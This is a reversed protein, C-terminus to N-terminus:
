GFLQEGADKFQQKEEDTLSENLLIKLMLNTYTHVAPIDGFDGILILRQIQVFLEPDEKMLTEPDRGGKKMELIKLSKRRRVNELTKRTPEENPSIFLLAELYAIHRDMTAISSEFPVGVKINLEFEIITQVQPIDGHEKLLIAHKYKQELKSDGRWFEVPPVELELLETVYAESLPVWTEDPPDTPSSLYVITPAVETDDTEGCSYFFSLCLVCLCLRLILTSKM